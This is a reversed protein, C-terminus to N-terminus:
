KNELHKNSRNQKRIDKERSKELQILQTKFNNLTAITPEKCTSIKKTISM